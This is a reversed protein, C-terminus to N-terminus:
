FNIETYEFQIVNYLRRITPLGSKMRWPGGGM